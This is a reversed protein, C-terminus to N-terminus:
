LSAVRFIALFHKKFLNKKKYCRNTNFIGCCYFDIIFGDGHQFILVYLTILKYFNTEFELKFKASRFVEDVVVQLAVPAPYAVHPLLYEVLRLRVLGGGGGLVLVQHALVVLQQHVRPVALRLPAVEDEAAVPGDEDGQLEDVLDVDARVLAAVPRGGEYFAAQVRVLVLLQPPDDAHVLDGPLEGLVEM